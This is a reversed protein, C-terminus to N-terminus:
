YCKGVSDCACPVCEKDEKRRYHLPQCLECNVGETNDECEICHGGSGTKDFLQQDFFCKNSKGNCNCALVYM